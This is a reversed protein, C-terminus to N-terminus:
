VEEHQQRISIVGHDLRLLEAVIQKRDFMWVPTELRTEERSEPKAAVSPLFQLGGKPNLMQRLFGHM